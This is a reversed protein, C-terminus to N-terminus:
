LAVTIIADTRGHTKKDPTLTVCIDGVEWQGPGTLCYHPEVRACAREYRVHELTEPEICSPDRHDRYRPVLGEVSFRYHETMEQLVYVKGSQLAENIAAEAQTASMDTLFEVSKAEAAGEEFGSLKLVFKRKDRPITALCLSANKARVATLINNIFVKKGVTQLATIVAGRQSPAVLPSNRVVEIAEAKSMMQSPYQELLEKELLTVGAESTLPIRQGQWDVQTEPSVLYTRPVMDKIAQFGAEGLTQRFYSELHPVWLLAMILKEELFQQLSPLDRAKGRRYVELIYEFGPVVGGAGMYIEYFRHIFRIPRPDDVSVLNGMHDLRLDKSYVVDYDRYYQRVTKAFLDIDHLYPQLVPWDLTVVSCRGGQGESLYHLMKAFSVGLSQPPNEPFLHNRIVENYGIGGFLLEIESAEFGGDPEIILDLRFMSPTVKYAVLNIDEAEKRWLTQLEPIDHWLSAHEPNTMLGNVALLFRGVVNGAEKISQLTGEPLQLKETTIGFPVPRGKHKVGLAALEQRKQLLFGNGNLSMVSEEKQM